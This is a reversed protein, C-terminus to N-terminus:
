IFRRLTILLVLLSCLVGGLFSIYTYMRMWYFEAEVEDLLGDVKKIRAALSLKKM